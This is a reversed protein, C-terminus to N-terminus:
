FIPPGAENECLIWNGGEMTCPAGDHEYLEPIHGVDRSDISVGKLNFKWIELKSEWRMDVYIADETIKVVKGSNGYAGSAMSVLQGVVLKDTDIM